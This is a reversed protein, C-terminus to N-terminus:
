LLLTSKLLLIDPAFPVPRSAAPAPVGDHCGTLTVPHGRLLALAPRDPPAEAKAFAVQAEHLCPGGHDGPQEVPDSGGHCPHPDADQAVAAPPVYGATGSGSCAAACLPVQLGFLAALLAALAAHPRNM